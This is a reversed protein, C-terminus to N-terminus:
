EQEDRQIFIRKSYQGNRYSGLRIVYERHDICYYDGVGNKELRKGCIACYFEKKDFHLDSIEEPIIINARRREEYMDSGCCVGCSPCIVYGNPCKHSRRSDIIGNCHNNFCHNLRIIKGYQTCTKNDCKFRTVTHAAFMSQKDFPEIIHHCKDCYLHSLATYLWNLNSYFERIKKDIPESWIGLIHIFDFLTYRTYDSEHRYISSCFCPSGYCWFADKDYRNDHYRRGECFYPHHGKNDHVFSFVDPGIALYANYKDVFNVADCIPTNTACQWVQLDPNYRIGRFYSKLVSANTSYNSTIYIKINSRDSLNVILERPYQEQNSKYLGYRGTCIDFLSYSDLDTLSRATPPSDPYLVRLIRYLENNTLFQGETILRKISIVVILVNIDVLNRQQRIRELYENNITIQNMRHLEFLRRIFLTQQKSSLIHIYDVFTDKYPHSDSNIDDNLWKNLEIASVIDDNNITTYINIDVSNTINYYIWEVVDKTINNIHNVYRVFLETYENITVINKINQIYSIPKDQLIIFNYLSDLTFPNSIANGTWLIFRQTDNLQEVFSSSYEVFVDSSLLGDRKIALIKEVIDMDVANFLAIRTNDDVNLVRIIFKVDDYTNERQLYYNTNEICEFYAKALYMNTYTKASRERSFQFLEESSYYASLKNRVICYLNSNRTLNDLWNEFISRIDEIRLVDMDLLVSLVSYSRDVSICRCVDLFTKYDSCIIQAIQTTSMEVALDSSSCNLLQWKYENNLNEFVSNFLINFDVGYYVNYYKLLSVLNKFGDNNCITHAYDICLEFLMAHSDLFLDINHSIAFDVCLKYDVADFDRSDICIINTAFYTLGNKAQQLTFFVLSDADVSMRKEQKGLRFNYKQDNFDDQVKGFHNINYDYFLVKGVRKAM